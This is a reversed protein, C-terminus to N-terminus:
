VTVLLKEDASFPMRLIVETKESLTTSGLAVWDSLVVFQSSEQSRRSTQQALLACSPWWLPRLPPCVQWKTGGDDGDSELKVYM